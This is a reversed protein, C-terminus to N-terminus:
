MMWYAGRQHYRHCSHLLKCASCFRQCKGIQLKRVEKILSLGNLIHLRCQTQLVRSASARAVQFARVLSQRISPRGKLQKDLVDYHEELKGAAGSLVGQWVDLTDSLSPQLGQSLPPLVYLGRAQLGQWVMLVRMLM